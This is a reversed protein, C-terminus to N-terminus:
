RAHDAMEFLRRVQVLTALIPAKGRTLRDLMVSQISWRFWFALGKTQAAFGLGIM